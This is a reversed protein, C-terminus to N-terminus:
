NVPANSASTAVGGRQAESFFNRGGAGFTSISGSMGTYKDLLIV